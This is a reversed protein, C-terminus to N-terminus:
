YNYEYFIYNVNTWVTSVYYLRRKRKDMGHVRRLSTKETQGYRPCTTFIDKRDTRVTSVCYLHRKPRDTGHVRRLSTKETQGYRLCSFFIDKRDTWPISLLFLHKLSTIFNHIVYKYKIIYMKKDYLFLFLSSVSLM